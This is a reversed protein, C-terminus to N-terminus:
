TYVAMLWSARWFLKIYIHRDCIKYKFTYCHRDWHGRPRLRADAAARKSLNHNRIGSPAHNDTQKSHQATLYFDRRRDPWEDLPTRGVTTHRQTHDLFRFFSSTKALQLSNRWFCVSLHTIINWVYRRWYVLFGV